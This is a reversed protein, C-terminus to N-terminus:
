SVGLVHSLLRYLYEICRCMSQLTYEDLHVLVMYCGPMHMFYLMSFPVLMLAYKNFQRVSVYITMHPWIYIFVKFKKLYRLVHYSFPFFVHFIAFSPLYFSFPSVAIDCFLNSHMPPFVAPLSSFIFFLFLFNM